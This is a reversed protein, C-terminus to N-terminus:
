SRMLPDADSLSEVRQEYNIKQMDGAKAVKYRENFEANAARDEKVEVYDGRDKINLLGYGGKYGGHSGQWREAIAEAEQRDLWRKFPMGNLTVMYYAM